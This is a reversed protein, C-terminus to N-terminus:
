KVVDPTGIAMVQFFHTTECHLDGSNLNVYESLCGLVLVGDEGVVVGQSRGEEHGSASGKFGTTLRTRFNLVVKLNLYM